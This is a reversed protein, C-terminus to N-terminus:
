SKWGKKRLFCGGRRCNNITKGEKQISEVGGGKESFPGKKEPDEPGGGRGKNKSICGILNGSAQATQFSKEKGL